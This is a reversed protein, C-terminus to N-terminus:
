HQWIFIRVDNLVVHKFEGPNNFYITGPKIDFTYYDSYTTGSCDKAFVFSFFNARYVPGVFPEDTGLKINALNCIFFESKEDLRDISTGLNRYLDYIRNLVVPKNESKMIKFTYFEALNTDVEVSLLVAGIFRFAM